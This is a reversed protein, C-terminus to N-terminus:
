SQRRLAWIMVASSAADFEGAQYDGFVADVRFGAETALGRFTGEEIMEFHMAQLLREKLRADPGYREIFQSRHVVPQGGTEFGSVVVLDQGSPFTGVGRLVGDVSGRRVAPNHMTCYFQGDPVLARYAARLANLQKERGVLEMFSQFPLIVCDFASEFELHQVDACLVTAHLGAGELKRKLVNIMGQSIDVCTLSAGARALPISLRGTGSTLELVRMGPTVRSLFFEFDYTAAAYCDYIEAVADYDIHDMM